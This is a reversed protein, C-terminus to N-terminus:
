SREQPFASPREAWARTPTRRLLMHCVADTLLVTLVALLTYDTATM